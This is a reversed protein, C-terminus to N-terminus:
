KRYRDILSKLDGDVFWNFITSQCYEMIIIIGDTTLFNDKYSVVFPNKLSQM